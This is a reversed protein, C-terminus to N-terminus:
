INLILAVFILLYSILMLAGEIKNLHYKKGTYLFGLLLIIAFANFAFYKHYGATNIPAIISAVGLVFLTNYITSGILNGISIDQQKKLAAVVCTTLEPLTTGISLITAGIIFDSINLIKAIQVTNSVVHIGGIYLLFSGLAILKISKKEFIHIIKTEKPIHKILFYIYTSFILILFVGELSSITNAPENLGFVSFFWLFFVAILAFFAQKVFTKNTKIELFFATLGIIVLINFLNSGFVNGLGVTSNGTLSSIINVILEPATTGITVVTMGIVLKSLGLRKSLRVSGEVLLNSGMVLFFLGFALVVLEFLM